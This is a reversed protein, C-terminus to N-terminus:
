KLYECKGLKECECKLKDPMPGIERYYEIKTHEYFDREWKNSHINYGAIDIYWEGPEMGKSAALINMFTGPLNENFPKWVLSDCIIKKIKNNM